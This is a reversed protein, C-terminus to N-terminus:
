LLNPFEAFRSRLTSENISPLAPRKQGSNLEGLFFLTLSNYTVVFSLVVVHEKECVCVSVCELVSM